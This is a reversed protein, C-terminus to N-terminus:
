DGGLLPHRSTRQGARRKRYDPLKINVVKMDSLRSAIRAGLHQEIEDLTLNSTVITWLEERSRRDILLCLISEAWETAKEAGLDDFILLDVASYRDIIDSESECADPRFSSRLRLLLEPVSVFLSQSAGMKRGIDREWCEDVLLEEDINQIFYRLTAVSLHTKGCGTKGSLLIGERNEVAKRCIVKVKEGGIFNEFSAAMYKTPINAMALWREPNDAQEKIRAAHKKQEEKDHTELAEAFTTRANICRECQCDDLFSEGARGSTVNWPYVHFVGHPGRHIPLPKEAIEQLNNLLKSTM